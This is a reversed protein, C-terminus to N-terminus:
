PGRDITVNSVELSNPFTWREGPCDQLFCVALTYPAPSDLRSFLVDTSSPSPPQRARTYRKRMSAVHSGCADISGDCKSDSKQRALPAIRLGLAILAELLGALQRIALLLVFQQGTLHSRPLFLISQQALCDPQYRRRHDMDFRGFLLRNLLNTQVRPELFGPNAGLPDLLSSGAHDDINLSAVIHQGVPM